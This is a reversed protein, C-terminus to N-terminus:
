SRWIWDPGKDNKRRYFDIIAALYASAKFFRERERSKFILWAIDRLFSIILKKTAKPAHLKSLLLNSRTKHYAKLASDTGGISVSVKHYIRAKPVIINKLGARKARLGLDVDEWYLFFREDLLGITELVNRKILLACGTVYDTEHPDLEAIGKHTSVDKTYVKCENRDFDAGDFWIKDAPDAYYIVPGVMATDSSKEAEEVLINLFDATTIADDNLLLVYDAYNKLAKQIGLNNGRSYGVNSLLSIM